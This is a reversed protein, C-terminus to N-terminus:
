YFRRLKKTINRLEMHWPNVLLQMRAVQVLVGATKMRQQNTDQSSRNSIEGYKSLFNQNPVCYLCYVKEDCEVISGTLFCWCAM